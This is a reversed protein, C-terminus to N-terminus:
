LASAPRKIHAGPERERNMVGNCRATHRHVQVSARTAGGPLFTLPLTLYTSGSTTQGFATKCLRGRISPWPADWSAQGILVVYLSIVGLECYATIRNQFPHTPNPLQCSLPLRWM